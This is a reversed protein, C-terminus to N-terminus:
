MMSYVWQLHVCERFHVFSQTEFIGHKGVESFCGGLFTTVLTLGLLKKCCMIVELYCVSKFGCMTTLALARMKGQNM